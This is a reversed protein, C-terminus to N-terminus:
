CNLEEGDYYGAVEEEEEEEDERSKGALERLASDLEAILEQTDAVRPLEGSSSDFELGHETALFLLRREGVSLTSITGEYFPRLTSNWASDVVDDHPGFQVEYRFEDWLTKLPRGDEDEADDGYIGTAPHRQLAGAIDQALREFREGAFLCIAREIGSM